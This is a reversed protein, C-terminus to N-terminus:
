KNKRRYETFVYIIALFTMFTLAVVVSSGTVPIVTDVNKFLGMEQFIWGEACIVLSMIPAAGVGVGLLFTLMIVGMSVWEVPIGFSEIIVAAQSVFGFMVAANQQITEKATNGTLLVTYSQGNVVTGNWCKVLSGSANTITANSAPCLATTQDFFQYEVNSSNGAFTTTGFVFNDSANSYPYKLSRNTQFISMTGSTTAGGLDTFNLWVTGATNNIRTTSVILNYNAQATTSGNTVFPNGLNPMIIYNDDHPTLTINTFSYGTAVFGMSYQVNSMMTFTIDGKSDTYGSLTLNSLPVAALDYGFLSAVYDYSGTTTQSPIASVYANPIAKGIMEQLHFRTDKPPYTIANGQQTSISIPLGTFNSTGNVNSVTLIPTFVGAYSYVHTVSGITTSYPQTGYADGFSWNYALGTPTGQVSTDTFSILAGPTGSVASQTFSANPAGITANYMGMPSISFGGYLDYSKVSVNYTGVTHFTHSVPSGTIAPFPDSIEYTRPYLSSEPIAVGKWIAIDDIWGNWTYLNGVAQYNGIALVPTAPDGVAVSAPVGAVGDVYITVTGSNGVIDVQHFGEGVNPSLASTIVSGSSGYFGFKTGDWIVYWGQYPLTVKMFSLPVMWTSGAGNSYSRFSITFSQSANGIVYNSSYPLSLYSGSINDFAISAGGFGQGTITVNGNTTVTAGTSSDDKFPASLNGHLLLKLSSNFFNGADNDTDNFNWQRSASGSTDTFTINAPANRSRVDGSFAANVITTNIWANQVSVNTRNGGKELSIFTENAYGAKGFTSTANRGTSFSVPGYQYVGGVYNTAFWNTAGSITSRDTFNVATPGYGGSVNSSFQTIGLSYPSVPSQTNFEGSYPYFTQYPIKVGNYLVLDDINGTLNGPSAGGNDAGAVVSRGGDYLATYLTTSVTTPTGNVEATVVSGDRSVSIHSWTGSLVPGISVGSAVNWSAGDTSMWVRAFGGSFGILLGDVAAGGGNSYVYQSSAGGTTWLSVTWNNSGLANASTHPTALSGGNIWVSGAGGIKSTSNLAVTGLSTITAGTDSVFPSSTNFHSSIPAEYPTYAGYYYSPDITIPLVPDGGGWVAINYPVHLTVVGDSYTYYVFVQDGNADVATPQMIQIGEPIGGDQLNALESRKNQTDEYIRYGGGYPIIAQSEGIEIPFDITERYENMVITEKFLVGDYTHTFSVPEIGEELVPAQILKGGKGLVPAAEAVEPTKVTLSEGTHASFTVSGDEAQAVDAKTGYYTGSKIDEAASVACSIFLLAVVLVALYRMQKREKEQLFM